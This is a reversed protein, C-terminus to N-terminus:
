ARVVFVSGNIWQHRDLLPRVVKAYIFLENRSFPNSCIQCLTSRRYTDRELVCQSLSLVGHLVFSNSNVLFLQDIRGPKWISVGTSQQSM